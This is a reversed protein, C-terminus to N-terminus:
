GPRHAGSGRLGRRTVEPQHGRPRTPGPLEAERRRPGIALRPPLPSEHLRQLRSRDAQSHTGAVPLIGAPGQGPPGDNGLIVLSSVPPGTTALFFLFSFFGRVGARNAAPACTRTFGPVVSGSKGSM